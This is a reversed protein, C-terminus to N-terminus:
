LEVYHNLEIIISSIMIQFFKLIINNIEKRVNDKKIQLLCHAYVIIYFHTHTNHGYSAILIYISNYFLTCLVEIQLIHVMHNNISSM